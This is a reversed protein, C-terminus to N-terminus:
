WSASNKTGLCRKYRPIQGNNDELTIYLNAVRARHEGCACWIRSWGDSRPYESLSVLSSCRYSDEDLLATLLDQAGLKTLWFSPGLATLM